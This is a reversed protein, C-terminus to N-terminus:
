VPMGGGIGTGDIDPVPVEAGLSYSLPLAIDHTIVESISKNPRSRDARQLSLGCLLVLHTVVREVTM